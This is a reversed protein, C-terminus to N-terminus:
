RIKEPSSFNGTQLPTYGIAFGGAGGTTRTPPNGNPDMEPGLDGGEAEEPDGAASPEAGSCSLDLSLWGLVWSWIRALPAATAVGSEGPLVPRGEAAPSGSFLAFAILFAFGSFGAKRVLSM